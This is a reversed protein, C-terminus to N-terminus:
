KMIRTLTYGIVAGALIGGLVGITKDQMFKGGIFAGTAGLGVIIGYKAISPMPKRETKGSNKPDPETVEGTKTDLDGVPQLKDDLLQVVSM